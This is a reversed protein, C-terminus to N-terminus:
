IHRRHPSCPRGRSEVVRRNACSGNPQRDVIRSTVTRQKRQPPHPSAALPLVFICFSISVRPAATGAPKTEFDSWQASGPLLSRGFNQGVEVPRAGAVSGGLRDVSTELVQM